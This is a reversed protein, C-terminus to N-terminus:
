TGLSRFGGFWGMYRCVGEEAFSKSLKGKLYMRLWIDSQFPDELVPPSQFFGTKNNDVDKNEM